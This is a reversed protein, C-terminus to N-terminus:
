IKELGAIYAFSMLALIALILIMLLDLPMGVEWPDLPFIALGHRAPISPLSGDTLPREVIHGTM